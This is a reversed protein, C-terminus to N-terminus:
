HRSDVRVSEPDSTMGELEDITWMPAFPYSVDSTASGSSGYSAMSASRPRLDVMEVDDSTRAQTSNSQIPDCIIIETSFQTNRGHFASDRWSSVQGSSSALRKHTRAWVTRSNLASLISITYFKSLPFNFLTHLANAESALFLTMDLFACITSLLNAQVTVQGVREVLNALDPVHRRKYLHWLLIASIFIDAVTGTILWIALTERFKAKTPMFLIVANSLSAVASTLSLLGIFIPVIIYGFIEYIRAAYVVQVSFGVLGGIIPVASLVWVPDGLHELQGNHVILSQYMLAILFATHVTDALFLYSVYARIWLKDNRHILLYMHYQQMVVGYLLVNFVIGMTFAGFISGIRTGINSM